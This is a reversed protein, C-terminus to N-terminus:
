INFVWSNFVWTWGIQSLVCLPPLLASSSQSLGQTQVRTNNNPHYAREQQRQTSFRVGDSYSALHTRCTGTAKAIATARLPRWTLCDIDHWSAPVSTWVCLCMGVSAYVCVCISIYMVKKGTDTYCKTQSFLKKNCVSLPYRINKKNIQKNNYFGFIWVGARPPFYLGVCDNNKGGKNKGPSFFNVGFNYWVVTKNCISKRFSSSPEQASMRGVLGAHM